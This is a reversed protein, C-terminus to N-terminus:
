IFLLRGRFQLADDFVNELSRVGSGDNRRATIPVPRTAMRPPRAM